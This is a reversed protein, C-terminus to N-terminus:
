SPSHRDFPHLTSSTTYQINCRERGGAGQGRGGGGVMWESELDSMFLHFCAQLTLSNMRM